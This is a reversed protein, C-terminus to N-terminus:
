QLNETEELLVARHAEDVKKLFGASFESATLIRKLLETLVRSSHDVKLEKEILAIKEARSSYTELKKLLIEAQQRFNRKM